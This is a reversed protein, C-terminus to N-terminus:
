DHSTRTVMDAIQDREDIDHPYMHSSLCSFNCDCMWYDFLIPQM